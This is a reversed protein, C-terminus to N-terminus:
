IEIIDEDLDIPKDEKITAIISKNPNHIQVYRGKARLHYLGKVPRHGGFYYSEEINEEDLLYYDLMRNVSGNEADDNATWTLGTVVEPRDRYEILDERHYFTLPESHSILFNKGVALLPLSKEFHYYSNLFDKGYFKKIYYVVMAGEYAYKRFSYNGYGHENSINEHNGKLFHFNLPFSSKVEKVMEMVGLSERMEEDIYRHKKYKKLYEEYALAWRQAARGEAHFGDGVCVIQLSHNALKQLNSIGGRDRHLMIKLFFDIRAHIDPVIFTPINQKLYLIGGPLGSKGYPRLKKNENQLVTHIKDLVPLYEEPSPPTKRKYIEILRNQLKEVDKRRYFVETNINKMIIINLYVPNNKVPILCRSLPM